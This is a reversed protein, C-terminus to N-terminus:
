ILVKKSTEILGNYIGTSSRPINILFRNISAFLHSLNGASAGGSVSLIKTFKDLSHIMIM